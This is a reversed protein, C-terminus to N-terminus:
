NVVVDLIYAASDDSRYIYDIDIYLECYIILMYLASAGAAATPYIYMYTENYITGAAHM